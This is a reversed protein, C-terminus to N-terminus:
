RNTDIIIMFHRQRNKACSHFFFYYFFSFERKLYLVQVKTSLFDERLAHNKKELM